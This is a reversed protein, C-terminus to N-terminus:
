NIRDIYIRLESCDFEINNVSLTFTIEDPRNGKLTYQPEENITEQFRYLWGNIMNKQFFATKPHITDIRSSYTNGNSELSFSLSTYNIEINQTDAEGDPLVVRIRFTVDKGPIANGNSNSVTFTTYQEGGVTTWAPLGILQDRVFETVIPEVPERVTPETESVETEIPVPDTQESESPDSENPMIRDSQEEELPDPDKTETDEDEQVTDATEPEPIPQPVSVYIPPVSSATFQVINPVKTSYRGFSNTVSLVVAISLAIPFLVYRSLRRINSQKTM